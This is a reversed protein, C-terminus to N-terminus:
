KTNSRFSHEITVSSLVTRTKFHPTIAALRYTKGGLLWGLTARM